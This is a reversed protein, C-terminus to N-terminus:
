TYAGAKIRISLMRTLFQLFQHAHQAYAYPATFRLSVNLVFLLSFTRFCLGANKFHVLSVCAFCIWNRKKESGLM